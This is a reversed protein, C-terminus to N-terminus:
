CGCGWVGAPWNPTTAQPQRLSIKRQWLLHRALAPSGWYSQVETPCSTISWLAYFGWLAPFLLLGADTTAQLPQTTYSPLGGGFSLNWVGGKRGAVAHFHLQAACGLDSGSSGLFGERAAPDFEERTYAGPDGQAARSGERAWHNDLLGSM